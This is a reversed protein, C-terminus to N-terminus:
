AGEATGYAHVDIVDGDTLPPLSFLTNMGWLNTTAIPVKVGDSRLQDIM